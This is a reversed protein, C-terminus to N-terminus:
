ESSNPGEDREEPPGAVIFTHLERGEPWRALVQNAFPDRTPLPESRLFAGICAISDACLAMGDSRREVDSRSDGVPGVQTYLANM